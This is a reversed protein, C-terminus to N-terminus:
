SMETLLKVPLIQQPSVNHVNKNHSTEIIICQNFDVHMNLNNVYTNKLLNHKDKLKYYQAM